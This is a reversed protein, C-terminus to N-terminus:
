LIWTACVPCQWSDIPKSSSDSSMLSSLVDGVEAVTIQYSFGTPGHLELPKPPEGGKALGQNIADGFEQLWKTPPSGQRGIYLKGALM